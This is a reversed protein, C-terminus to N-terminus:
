DSFTHRVRSAQVRAGPEAEVAVPTDIVDLGDILVHTGSGLYVGAGCNIVTNNRLVVGPRDIQTGPLGTATLHSRCRWPCWEEHCRDCNM